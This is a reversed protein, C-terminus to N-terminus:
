RAEVLELRRHVDKMEDRIARIDSKVEDLSEHIGTLHALVSQEFHMAATQRRELKDMRGNMEAISSQIGRLMGVIFENEEAM